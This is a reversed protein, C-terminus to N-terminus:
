LLGGLDLKNFLHNKSYLIPIRFDKVKKTENLVVLLEYDEKYEKWNILVAESLGNNVADQTTSYFIIKSNPLLTGVDEKSISTHIRMNELEKKQIFRKTNTVLTYGEGLLMENAYLMENQKAKRGILAFDINENNLEELAKASSSKEVLIINKNNNVIQKAFSEMTPCYGLIIEDSTTKAIFENNFFLVGSILLILIVSSIIIKKKM